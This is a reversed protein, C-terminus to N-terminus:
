SWRDLLSIGLKEWYSYEEDNLWLSHKKELKFSCEDDMTCKLKCKVDTITTSATHAPIIRCPCLFDLSYSSMIKNDYNHTDVVRKLAEGIDTFIKKYTDRVADGYVRIEVFFFTDAVTVCCEEVTFQVFNKYIDTLKGGRKRLKWKQMLGCVLACFFGRPVCQTDGPLKIVVSPAELTEREKEFKDLSCHPLVCPMFYRGEEIRAVVLTIKLLEIVEAEKFGAAPVLFKSLKDKVFSETFEGRESFEKFATDTVKQYAEKVFASVITVVIQPDTFIIKSLSSPYPFYLFINLDHFYKLAKELQLENLKIPEALSKCKGITIVGNFKKEKGGISRMDEELLFWSIPVKIKKSEKNVRKRIDSGTSENEKDRKMADLPFLIDGSEYDGRCLVDLQKCKSGVFPAFIDKLRSNKAEIGEVETQQDKHTGVIIVKTTHQENGETHKEYVASQIVGKLIQEVQYPAERSRSDGICRGKDYYDDFLQKDLTESLKLVFIIVSTHHLFAPLVDHFQSQGGSDVLHIWRVKHVCKGKQDPRMLQLLLSRRAASDQRGYTHKQKASNFKPNPNAATEKMSSFQHSSSQPQAIPVSEMKTPQLAEGAPRSMEQPQKPRDHKDKYEYKYEKSDVTAALMGYLTESGAEVVIWEDSDSEEHYAIDHKIEYKKTTHELESETVEKVYARGMTEILETSQRHEPPPLKYLLLKTCTKGSGAAGTIIVKSIDLEVHGESTLLQNLEEEYGKETLNQFVCLYSRGM